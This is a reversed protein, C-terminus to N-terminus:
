ETTDPMSTMDVLEIWVGRASEPPVWALRVAYGPFITRAVEEVVAIGRKKLAGVKEDYEDTFFSLHFLGEGREELFRAYRNTSNTPQIFEVFSDGVPLLVLRVGNEADNVIGKGWPSLGFMEGYMKLVDDLDRVVIGVHDLRKVM